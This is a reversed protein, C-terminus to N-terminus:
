NKGAYQEMYSSVFRYSSGEGQHGHLTKDIRLRASQLRGARVDFVVEGEPQKALLPIQEQATQPQTRFQTTLAIVAATADAKTCAYKQVAEYEGSAQKVKFTRAWAAGAAVPAPPLMVLLPLNSEFREAEGQKVEIVQGRANVRVVALPQNLYKAMQERLEPASKDPDSSDYLLRQGDPRTQESRLAALTLKLTAVGQADVDLVQWRKLVTVKANTETKKGGIVESVTSTQEVRYPLVQGPQWRFRWAPERATAPRILVLGLLVMLGLKRM